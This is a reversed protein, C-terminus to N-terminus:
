IEILESTHIYTGSNKFWESRVSLIEEDETIKKWVEKYNDFSDSTDMLKFDDKTSPIKLFQLIFFLLMTPPISKVSLREYVRKTIDWISVIIQIYQSLDPLVWGFYKHGIYNVDDYCFSNNTEKLINILMKVSTNHKNGIVEKYNHSEKPLNKYYSGPKLNLKLMYKDMHEYLTNPIDAGCRKGCFKNIIDMIVNDESVVNFNLQYPDHYSIEKSTLYFSHGCSCIYMNSDDIVKSESYKLGCLICRSDNLINRTVDVKIYEKVLSIYSEITELREYLNHDDSNLKEDLDMIGDSSYKSYKSIIKEAENVYKMWDNPSEWKDSMEILKKYEKMVNKKENHTLSASESKSKLVKADNRIGAAAKRKASFLKRMYIHFKYLDLDKGYNILIITTIRDDFDDDLLEKDLIISGNKSKHIGYKKKNQKGILSNAIM